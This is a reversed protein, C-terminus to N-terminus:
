ANDEGKTAELAEEAMRRKYSQLNDPDLSITLAERLTAIKEQDKFLNDSAFSAYEEHDKELEAIRAELERIYAQAENCLSQHDWKTAMFNDIDKTRAVSKSM